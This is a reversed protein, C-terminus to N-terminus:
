RAARSPARLRATVVSTLSVSESARSGQPLIGDVYQRGHSLAASQTNVEGDFQQGELGPIPLDQWGGAIFREIFVRATWIRQGRVKDAKAVLVHGKYRERKMALLTAV